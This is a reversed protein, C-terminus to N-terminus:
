VINQIIQERLAVVKRIKKQETKRFAENSRSIRKQETNKRQEEKRFEEDERKKQMYLKQKLRRQADSQKTKKRKVSPSRASIDASQSRESQQLINSSSFPPASIPTKFTPDGSKSLLKAPTYPSLEEQHSERAM